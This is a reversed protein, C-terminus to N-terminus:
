LTYIINELILGGIHHCKQLKGQPIVYGRYFNDFTLKQQADDPLGAVKRYIKGDIDQMMYCKLKLVKFRTFIHEEKLCGYEANDIKIGKGKSTLYISDTDCYIFNERNARIARFLLTRSMSTIYSAIPIYSISKDVTIKREEVWEQKTGYRKGKMNKEPNFTLIKSVRQISQGFKGYLSNQKIKAILRDVPNKANIKEDKIKNIFDKFVYKSKFFLSSIHIYNIDYVKLIEEWEERWIVITFDEGSDLYRGTYCSNINNPLMAPLLLDTKEAKIIRIEMLELDTEDTKRLRPAGYPMRYNLMVSPYMSNWDYSHGPNDASLIIDQEVYRPAIAVYGGNYSQKIFEWQEISLTHSAGFPSGFDKTFERAGYYNIFEYYMTGAITTKVKEVKQSFSSMFERVIDIDRYLYSLLENPVDEKKKFSKYKDYDIHLKPLNLVKGLSDVSVLLIKLSDLLVIKFGNYNIIIKYINTNYDATWTFTNKEKSSYKEVFKFGKDILYHVIFVGDWSINHFYIYPKDLTKVFSFFSDLDIGYEKITNDESIIGWLYTNVKNDVLTTSTEFDSYYIM